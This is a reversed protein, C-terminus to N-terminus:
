WARCEKIRLTAGLGLRTCQNAEPKHKSGLVKHEKSKPTAAQALRPCQAVSRGVGKPSLHRPRPRTKLM